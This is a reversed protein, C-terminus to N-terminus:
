GKIKKKSDAWVFEKSEKKFRETPLFLAIDWEIPQIYMFKSRMHSSLYRKVCPKFFNIKAVKKMLQYSLGLKTTEDYKDNNAFEYLGDMLNARLQLPLYHMNLGMFGGPAKEYPFVLPFTDFFPLEKDWKPYYFFMYMSGLIPQSTLRGPDGKLFSRENLTKIKAATNRYWERAEETHAPIQGARVGKRIIDTFLTAVM